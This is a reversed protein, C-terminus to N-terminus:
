SKKIQPLLQKAMEVQNEFNAAHLSLENNTGFTLYNDQNVTCHLMYTFDQKREFNNALFKKLITIPNEGVQLTMNFLISSKTYSKLNEAGVDILLIILTLRFDKVEDNILDFNLNENIPKYFENKADYSLLVQWEVTM